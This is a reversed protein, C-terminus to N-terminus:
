EDPYETNFAHTLDYMAWAQLATWLGLFGISTVAWSFGFSEVLDLSERHPSLCLGVLIGILACCGIGATIGVWNEREAGRKRSSQVVWGTQVAYAVLLTAGIQALPESVAAPDSFLLNIGYGTVASVFFTVSIAEVFGRRLPSLGRLVPLKWWFGNM